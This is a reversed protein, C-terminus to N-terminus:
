LNYPIVVPMSASANLTMSSNAWGSIPSFEIVTALNTVTPSGSRGGVWLHRNRITIAKGFIRVAPLAPGPSWTNASIDYIESSALCETAPQAINAFRFVSSGGAVLITKNWSGLPYEILWCQHGSFLFHSTAHGFSFM